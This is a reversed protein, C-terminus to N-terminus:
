VGYILNNLQTEIEAEHEKFNRWLIRMTKFDHKQDDTLGQLDTTWSEGRYLDSPLHFIKNRVDVFIDAIDCISELTCRYLTFKNQWESWIISEKRNKINFYLDEQTSELIAKKTIYSNYAIYARLALKISRDRDKSQVSLLNIKERVDAAIEGLKKNSNEIYERNKDIKIDIQEFRNKANAINPFELTHLIGYKGVEPKLMAELDTIRSSLQGILSNSENFSLSNKNVDQIKILDRYIERLSKDLKQEMLFIKNQIEKHAVFLSTGKGNHYYRICALTVGIILSLLSAALLSTLIIAGFGYNNIAQINYVSPGVITFIALLLSFFSSWDSIRSVPQDTKDFFRALLKM